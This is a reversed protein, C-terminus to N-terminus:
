KCVKRDIVGFSRLCEEMVSKGLWFGRVAERGRPRQFIIGEWGSGRREASVPKFAWGDSRVGHQAVDFGMWCRRKKLDGVRGVVVAVVVAWDGRWVCVGCWFLGRRKSDVVAVGSGDEVVTVGCDGM